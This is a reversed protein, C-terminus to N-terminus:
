SRLNLNCFLKFVTVNENVIVNKTKRGIPNLIENSLCISGFSNLQEPFTGLNIRRQKKIYTINESIKRTQYLLKEIEIGNKKVNKDKALGHFYM